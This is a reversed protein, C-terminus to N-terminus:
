QASGATPSSNGIDAVWKWSGDKQRTWVTVYKGHKSTENGAADRVRTVFTGWTYGLDGSAAIRGDKPEWSLALDDPWTALFENVPRDGSLPDLGESLLVPADGVYALFAERVGEEQAMRNFNRDAEMLEEISAAQVAMTGITLSLMIMSIKRLLEEKQPM